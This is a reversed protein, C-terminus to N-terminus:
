MINCVTNSEKHILLAVSFWLLDQLLPTVDDTQMKLLDGPEIIFFSHLLFLFLYRPLYIIDPLPTPLKAWQPSPLSPFFYSSKDNNITLLNVM